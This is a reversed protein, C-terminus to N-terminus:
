RPARTAPCSGGCLEVVHVAQDLVRQNSNRRSQVRGHVRHGVRGIQRCSCSRRLCVGAVCCVTFVTEKLLKAVIGLVGTRFIKRAESSVDAVAAQKEQTAKVGSWRVFLRFSNDVNFEAQIQECMKRALDKRNAALLEPAYPTGCLDMIIEPSATAVAKRGTRPDYGLVRFTPAALPKSSPYGSNPEPHRNELDANEEDDGSTPKQMGDDIEFVVLHLLVGSVRKVTRLLKKGRREPNLIIKDANFQRDGEGGLQLPTVKDETYLRETVCSATLDGDEHDPVEVTLRHLAIHELMDNQKEEAILDQAHIGLVMRIQGEGSLVVSCSKASASYYVQLRFQREKDAHLFVHQLFAQVTVRERWMAAGQRHAVKLVRSFVPKELLEETTSRATEQVDVTGPRRASAGPSPQEPAVAPVDLRNPVAPRASSLAELTNFLLETNDLIENSRPLTQEEADPELISSARRAQLGLTAPPQVRVVAPQCRRLVVALTSGDDGEVKLTSPLHTLPAVGNPPRVHEFRHIEDRVCVSLQGSGSDVQLLRTCLRLLGAVEESSPTKKGKFGPQLRDLLGDALVLRQTTGTAPNHAELEWRDGAELHLSAVLRDRGSTVVTSAVDTRLRLHVGQAEWHMVVRLRKRLRPWWARWDQSADNLLLKRQLLTLEVEASVSSQPQYLVVRASSSLTCIRLQLIFLRNAWSVCSHRAFVHQQSSSGVISLLFVDTSVLPPRAQRARRSITNGAAIATNCVRTEAARLSAAVPHGPSAVLMLLVM